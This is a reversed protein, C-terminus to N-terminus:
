LASVVVATYLHVFSPSVLSQRSHLSTWFEEMIGLSNQTDDLVEDVLSITPYNAPLQWYASDGLYQSQM